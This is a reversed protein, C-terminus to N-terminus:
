RDIAAGVASALVPALNEEISGQMLRIINECSLRSKDRLQKVLPQVLAGEGALFIPMSSDFIGQEYFYELASLISESLSESVNRALESDFVESKAVSNEFLSISRDQLAGKILSVGYNIEHSAVCEPGSYLRLMTDESNISIVACKLGPTHHEILDGLACTEPVLRSLELGADSAIEITDSVISRLVAVALLKREKKAAHLVQYDFIYDGELGSRIYDGFEFPLNMLLDSEALQSGDIRKTFCETDPIVLAAEAGKLGYKLMTEKVATSVAEGTNKASVILGTAAGSVVGNKVAAIYVRESDYNVALYKGM